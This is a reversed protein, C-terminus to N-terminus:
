ESIAAFVARCDALAAQAADRGAILAPMDTLAAARIADDPIGATEAIGGYRRVLANTPDFLAAEHLVVDCLRAGGQRAVARAARFVDGARLADDGDPPVRNWVARVAPRSTEPLQGLLWRLGAVSKGDSLLPVLIRLRGPLSADQRAVLRLADLAAVTDGVGVDLTLGGAPPAFLRAALSAQDISESEDDTRSRTEVRLARIGTAPALVHRELTTKGVNGCGSLTLYTMPITM